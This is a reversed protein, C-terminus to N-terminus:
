SQVAGGRQPTSLIHRRRRPFRYGGTTQELWNRVASILWLEVPRGIGGLARTHPHPADGGQVYNRWAARSLGTLGCVGEIDICLAEIQERKTFWELLVNPRWMRVVPYHPVNRNMAAPLGLKETWREITRPSVGCIDALDMLTVAAERAALTQRVKAINLRRRHM